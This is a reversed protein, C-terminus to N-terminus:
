LFRYARSYFSLAYALGQLLGVKWYRMSACSRIIDVAAGDVTGVADDGWGDVVTDMMQAGILASLSVDSAIQASQTAILTFLKEAERACAVALMGNTVPQQLEGDEDIMQLAVFLDAEVTLYGFVRCRATRILRQLASLVGQQTMLHQDRAPLAYLARDIQKRSYMVRMAGACIACCAGPPHVVPVGAPCALTAACRNIPSCVTTPTQANSLRGFQRCEGAYDPLSHDGRAHCESPYTVGNIGCVTGNILQTDDVASPCHPM